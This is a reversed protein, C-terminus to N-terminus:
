RNATAIGRLKWGLNNHRKSWKISRWQKRHNTGNTQQCVDSASNIGYPIRLFRYRGTSSNFTLLKSSSEAIPIHWYTNNAVLKTFKKAGEMNSLIEETTPIVYHLRKITQNLKRPDICIRLNGSPKKAVVM